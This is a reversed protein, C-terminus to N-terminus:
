VTSKEGHTKFQNRLYSKAETLRERIEEGFIKELEPELAEVERGLTEHQKKYQRQLTLLATKHEPFFCAIAGWLTERGKVITEGDLGELFEEEAQEPTLTDILDQPNRPHDESVTDPEPVKGFQERVQPQVIAWIIAFVLPTDTLIETFLSKDPKLLTFKKDTLASFDSNDVRRVVAMTLTLDWKRGKADTYISRPNSTIDPQSNM